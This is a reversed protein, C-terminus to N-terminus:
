PALSRRSARRDRERMVRVVEEVCRDPRDLSPTQLRPGSARSVICVAHHAGSRLADLHPLQMSDGTNSCKSAILQVSLCCSVVIELNVM